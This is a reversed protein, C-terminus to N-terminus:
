DLLELGETHFYHLPITLLMKEAFGAKASATRLTVEGVNDFYNNHFTFYMQWIMESCTHQPSVQCYAGASNHWFLLLKRTLPRQSITASTKHATKLRRASLFNDYLKMKFHKLWVKTYWSSSKSINRQKCTDMRTKSKM